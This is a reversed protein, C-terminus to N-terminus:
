NTMDYVPASPANQKVWNVSNIASQKSTYGESVAVIENNGARLRWRYEGVSDRYIYFKAM